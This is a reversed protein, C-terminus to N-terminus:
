QDAKQRELHSKDKRPKVYISDYMTYGKTSQKKAFHSKYCSIKGDPPMYFYSIVKQSRFFLIGNYPYVMVQKDM